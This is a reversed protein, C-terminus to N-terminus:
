TVAVEAQFHDVASGEEQQWPRRLALRITSLGAGRATFALSRHGRAGLGSGPATAFESGDLTLVANEASEPMWRYGSTPIEPLQVIIQDGVHAKVTTGRNSEDLIFKAV